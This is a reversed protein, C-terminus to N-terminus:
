KGAMTDLVEKVLGKFEERAMKMGEVFPVKYVTTFCFSVWLYAVFISLTMLIILILIFLLLFM